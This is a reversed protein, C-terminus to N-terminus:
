PGFLQAHYHRIVIAVIVGAAIGAVPLERLVLRQRGMLIAAFPVFSTSRMLEEYGPVERMKRADQHQGGAWSFVPFGGFFLVDGLSGNVLLHALGFLAFSVLMPHRTIRILGRAEARGSAQIGSPATSGPLVSCLFFAFAVLMTAYNLAHALTSPGLTTWLLPGAHKHAAFVWVLGVFTILAGLSYIGLFPQLGFRAVLGARVRDGSLVLHSGAFAAWLLAIEAPATM